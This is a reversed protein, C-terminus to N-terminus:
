EYLRTVQGQQNVCFASGGPRRFNASGPDFDASKPLVLGFDFHLERAGVDGEILGTVLFCDQSPGPRQAYFWPVPDTGHFLLAGDVPDGGRVRTAQNKDLELRRGDQLLVSIVSGDTFSVSQVVGVIDPRYQPTPTPEPTPSALLGCGALLAAQGLIVLSSGVKQMGYIM